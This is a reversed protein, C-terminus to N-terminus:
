PQKEGNLRGVEYAKFVDLLNVGYDRKTRKDCIRLGGGMCYDITGVVEGDERITASDIMMGLSGSSYREFDLMLEATIGGLELYPRKGREPMPPRMPPRENKAPKKTGKTGKTM